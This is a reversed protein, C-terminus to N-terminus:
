MAKYYETESNHDLMKRGGTVSMVEIAEDPGPTAPQKTEQSLKMAEPLAMMNSKSGNTEKVGVTTTEVQLSAALNSARSPTFAEPM